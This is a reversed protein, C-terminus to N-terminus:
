PLIVKRDEDAVLEVGEDQEYFKGVDTESDWEEDVEVPAEVAQSQSIQSKVVLNYLGQRLTNAVDEFITEENIDDLAFNVGLITKAELHITEKGDTLRSAIEVDLEPFREKTYKFLESLRM